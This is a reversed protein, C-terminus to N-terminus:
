TVDGLTHEVAAGYLTVDDGKVHIGTQCPNASGTVGGSVTHDARWLWMNDGVVHGSNVVVMADATVPAADPGGM